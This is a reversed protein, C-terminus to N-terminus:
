YLISAQHRTCIVGTASAFAIAKLVKGCGADDYTTNVTNDVYISPDSNELYRKTTQDGAASIDYLGNYLDGYGQINEILTGNVYLNLTDIISSSLRPFRLWGNGGTSTCTGEYFLSITRLDILTNPPLRCKFTSGAEVPGNPTPTLKVVTKSFGSLSSIKYALNRPFNGFEM